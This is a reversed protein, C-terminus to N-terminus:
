AAVDKRDIDAIQLGAFHCLIQKQLYAHNAALM